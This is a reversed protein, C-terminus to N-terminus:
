DDPCGESDGGDDDSDDRNTCKMEEMEPGGCGGISSGICVRERRKVGDGCTTSCPSWPQWPSLYGTETVFFFLM